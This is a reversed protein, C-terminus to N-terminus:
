LLITRSPVRSGIRESLAREKLCRATWWCQIFCPSVSNILCVNGFAPECKAQMLIIRSPLHVGLLGHPGIAHTVFFVKFKLRRSLCVHSPPTIDLKNILKTSLLLTALIEVAWSPANQLKIQVAGRSYFTFDRRSLSVDESAEWAFWMWLLAAATRRQWLNVSSHQKLSRQRNGNACVPTGFFLFFFNWLCFFFSEYTSYLCFHM